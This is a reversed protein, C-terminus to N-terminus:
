KEALVGLIAPKPELSKPVLPLDNGVDTSFQSHKIGLNKMGMFDLTSNTPHDMIIM